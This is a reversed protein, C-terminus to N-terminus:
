VYACVEGEEVGCEGYANNLVVTKQLWWTSQPGFVLCPELSLFAYWNHILQRIFELVDNQEAVIFTNEHFLFRFGFSLYFITTLISLKLSHRKASILVMTRYLSCFDFKDTESGSRSQYPFRYLALGYCCWRVSLLSNYGQCNLRDALHVEIYGM